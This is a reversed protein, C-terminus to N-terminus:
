CKSCNSSPPPPDILVMTTNRSRTTPRTRAAYRGVRIIIGCVRALDVVLEGRDSRGPRTCVIVFTAPFGANGAVVGPGGVSIRSTADPRAAPSSGAVPNPQAHNYPLGGFQKAYV